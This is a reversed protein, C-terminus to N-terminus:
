VQKYSIGTDSQWTLAICVCPPSNARAASFPVKHLSLIAHKLHFRFCASACFNTECPLYCQNSYYSSATFAAPKKCHQMPQKLMVSQRRRRRQTAWLCHINPMIYSTFVWGEICLSILLKEKFMILGVVKWSCLCRIRDQRFFSFSACGYWVSFFFCKKLLM